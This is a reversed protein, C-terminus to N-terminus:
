VVDDIVILKKFIYYKSEHLVVCLDKTNVIIDEDHCFFYYTKESVDDKNLNSDESTGYHYDMTYGNFSKYRYLYIDNDIYYNKTIDFDPIYEKLIDSYKQNINDICEKYEKYISNIKDIM